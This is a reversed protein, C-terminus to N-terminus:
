NDKWKKYYDLVIDDQFPPLSNQARKLLHELGQKVKSEVIESYRYILRHRDYEDEDVVEINGNPLRIVDLDYDIYTLIRGYVYYPSTVNCYYRIGSEEILAVVNFWQNPIFFSVGPVRSVWQKGSSEQIKTHDNIMVIMSEKYHSKHLMETPVRWNEMWMRHLHGDHKFSKIKYRKHKM